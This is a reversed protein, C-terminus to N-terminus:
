SCNSGLLGHNPFLRWTSKNVARLKRIRGPWGLKQPYTAAVQSRRERRDAYERSTRCGIPRGHRAEMQRTLRNGIVRHRLLRPGYFDHASWDGMTPIM